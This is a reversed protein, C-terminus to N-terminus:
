PAIFDAFPEYKLHAEVPNDVAAEARPRENAGDIGASDSM